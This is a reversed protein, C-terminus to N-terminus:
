NLEDEFEYPLPLMALMLARLEESTPMKLTMLGSRLDLTAGESEYVRVVPLLEGYAAPSGEPNSEGEQNQPKTAGSKLLEVDERLTKAADNKPLPLVRVQLPALGEPAAYFLHTGVEGAAVIAANGGRVILAEANLATMEEVERWRDVKASFKYEFVATYAKVLAERERKRGEDLSRILIIAGAEADDEPTEAMAELLASERLMEALYDNLREGHPPANTALEKLLSRLDM